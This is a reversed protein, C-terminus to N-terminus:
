LTGRRQPRWAWGQCALAGTSGSSAPVQQGALAVDGDPDGPRRVDARGAARSGPVMLPVHCSGEYFQGKGILGHDGLYDGHRLLLHRGHRRADRADRAGATIRDSRTTSRCSSPRTTPASRASTSRRSCPSYDVGNWDGKNGRVNGERLRPTDGADPAAAPMADEDVRDLFERTKPDYPCHPGPFGVMMALPRDGDYERITRAAEEGVFYDWYCDWPLRSVIAGRNEQYGDHENGHYKRHGREALYHFYDDQIRLWRKDECIIRHEFGM